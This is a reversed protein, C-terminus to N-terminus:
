SNSEGSAPSPTAPSPLPPSGRLPPPSPLSRPSRAPPPLPGCQRPLNSGPRPSPTQPVPNGLGILIRMLAGTAAPNIYTTPENCPTTPATTPIGTMRRAVVCVFPPM